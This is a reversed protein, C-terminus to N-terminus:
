TSHATARQWCGRRGRGSRVSATSAPPANPTAELHWVPPGTGAAGGRLEAMVRAFLRRAEATRLWPELRCRFESLDVGTGVVHAPIWSGLRRGIGLLDRDAEREVYALTEAPATYGRCLFQAVRLTPPRM